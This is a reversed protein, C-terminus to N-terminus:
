DPLPGSLSHLFAALAAQEAATLGLPQLEHGILVPEARNYHDLVADLTAFRGDHMYPGTAAINRLTPTKFAAILERGTTKVYRLEACTEAPADSYAGLCNFEDSLAQQVGTIRGRDTPLAAVPALGNNHFEFNAFLPGNHCTVCQAKGIFLRLGAEQEASLAAARGAADGAQVAQVYRDFPAPQPLLTREYAAIAKGIQAFARNVATREAETLAEWAAREAPTGLPGASVPLATVTPLPGFLDSYATRYTDDTALLRVYQVRTGGHEAADELPGLAQAWLSDKRGDWFFWASYAAGLLTMTRRATVGIAQAQPLDDRFAQPPRHCHACSISGNGSLRPDFFLRRGLEVARPDDAVANGPDPPLPPLSGLWLSQLVAREAATWEVAPLPLVLLGALVAALFGALRM